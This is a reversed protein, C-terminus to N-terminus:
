SPEISGLYDALDRNYATGDKGYHVRRHCNPCIAAVWRPHDPGGDAIRRTHHPELYPAGKATNFPAPHKCAECVGNARRLVYLKVAESRRYANVKRVAPPSGPPPKRLALERLQALTKSALEPDNKPEPLTTPPAIGAPETSDFALEFVIAQRLTGSRDPAPAYHHGVCQVPGVYRLHGSRTEEFLHLEKGNAESDRIARNGRVFEM